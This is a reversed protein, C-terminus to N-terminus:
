SYDFKPIETNVNVRNKSRLFRYLSTLYFTFTLSTDFGRSQGFRKVKKEIVSKNIQIGGRSKLSSDLWAVILPRLINTYLYGDIDIALYENICRLSSFCYLTFLSALGPLM